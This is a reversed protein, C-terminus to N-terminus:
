ISSFDIKKISFLLYPFVTSFMLGQLPHTVHDSKIRKRKISAQKYKKREAQLIWYCHKLSELHPRGTLESTEVQIIWFSQSFQLYKYFYIFLNKFFVENGSLWINLRFCFKKNDCVICAQLWFVELSLM